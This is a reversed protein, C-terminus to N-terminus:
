GFRSIRHFRVSWMNRRVGKDSIVASQHEAAQQNNRHQDEARKDSKDDAGNDPWNVDANTVDDNTNEPGLGQVPLRM